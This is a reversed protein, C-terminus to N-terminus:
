FYAIYGFHIKGDKLLIPNDFQKGLAYSISFVGLNSSFAFGVGFGFPMDNYYNNATNEYWSFDYFAFTHTNRDLLFRYEVTVTSLTSALLDDQNFGRQSNLGGFRFLENEFIKEAGYFFTRNALRLVHRKYLPIFFEIEIKGRYTLSRIIESSDNKQIKRDGMSAELYVSRGKRPNPIYDLSQSSLALGYLNANANGLNSYSPNNVGGSLVNSSLNEYFGKLYNGSNLAYTLGFNSQLELYSTDRKYLNFTGDIGFPSKFLYPYSIRSRLSQTQERISQWRVNISEGRHLINLLKLNLDGTLTTKTGASNPQLGLVGNVSSVKVSRLYLFLEVGEKTFLLEYEKIEEVFSLQRIKGSIKGLKEQNFLDGERIEILNEIFVESISSDGKVHIDLWYVLPGRDIVLETYLNHDRFEPKNLRINVFPYGNRLYINQIKVIARALEKPSLPLSALMKESIGGYKKLYELEDQMINLHAYNFREGLELHVEWIAGFFISDVSALLYGKSIASQQLENLYNLATLSDKFSSKPHKIFHQYSENSYRIEIKKQGSVPFLCFVVFVLTIYLCLKM